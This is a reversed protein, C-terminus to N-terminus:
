TLVDTSHCLGFFARMKSTCALFLFGVFWLGYDAKFQAQRMRFILIVWHEVELVIVM